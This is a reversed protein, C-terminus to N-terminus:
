RKCSEIVRENMAQQDKMAQEKSHDIGGTGIVLKALNMLHAVGIEEELEVVDAPPALGKLKLERTLEHFYFRVLNGFEADAMDVPVSTCFFWSIDSAVTSVICLQFDLIGLDGSEADFM